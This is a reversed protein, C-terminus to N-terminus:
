DDQEDEGTISRIKRRNQKRVKATCVKWDKKKKGILAVNKRALGFFNDNHYDAFCNQNKQWGKHQFYHVPTKYLGRTTYSDLGCVECPKANKWNQKSAIHKQFLKLDGCLRGPGYKTHRGRKERRVKHQQVCVWMNEDGMYLKNLPRYGCM